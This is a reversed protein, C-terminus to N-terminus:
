EFYYATFIDAHPTEWCIILTASRVDAWKETSIDSLLCVEPTDSNELFLLLLYEKAEELSSLPLNKLADLSNEKGEFTLAEPNEINDGLPVPEDQNKYHIYYTKMGCTLPTGEASLLPPCLNQM